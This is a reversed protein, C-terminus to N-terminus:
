PEAPGSGITAPNMRSPIRETTRISRTTAQEEMSVYGGGSGGSQNVIAFQLSQLPGTTFPNPKFYTKRLYVEFFFNMAPPTAAFVGTYQHM